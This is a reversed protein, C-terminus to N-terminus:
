MLRLFLYVDITSTGLDFSKITITHMYFSKIIVPHYSKKKKQNLGM